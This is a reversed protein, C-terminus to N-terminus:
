LNTVEDKTIEQELEASLFLFYHGHEDASKYALKHLHAKPVKYAVINNARIPFPPKDGFAHQFPLEPIAVYVQHMGAPLEAASATFGPVARLIIYDKGKNFGPSVINNGNRILDTLLKERPRDPHEAVDIPAHNSPPIYADSPSM